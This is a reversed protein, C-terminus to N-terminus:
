FPWLGLHKAVGGCIAAVAATLLGLAVIGVPNQYWNKRHRNEPPKPEAEVKLGEGNNGLAVNSSIELDDLQGRIHIGHGGNGIAVNNEFKIAM